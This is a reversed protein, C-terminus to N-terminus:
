MTAPRTGRNLPQLHLSRIQHLQQLVNLSFAPCAQRGGSPFGFLRFSGLIESPVPLWSLSSRRPLGPPHPPGEADGRRGSHGRGGCGYRAVPDSCGGGLLSRARELRRRGCGGWGGSLVSWAHLRSCWPLAPSLQQCQVSPLGHCTAWRVSYGVLNGPQMVGYLLGVRWLAAADPKDTQHGGRQCVIRRGRVSAVDDVVRLWM